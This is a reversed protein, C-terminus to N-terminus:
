PTAASDPLPELTAGPYRQRMEAATLEPLVVVELASGAPLRVLWRFHPEDDASREALASRAIDLLDM